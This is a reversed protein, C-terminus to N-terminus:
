KPGWIGPNLISSCDSKGTICSWFSDRDKTPDPSTNWSPMYYVGVLEDSEEQLSPLEINVLSATLRSEQISSKKQCSFLFVLFLFIFLSNNM